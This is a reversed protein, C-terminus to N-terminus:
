RWWLYDLSHHDEDYGAVLGHSAVEIAGVEDKVFSFQQKSFDLKVTKVNGAVGVSLSLLSTMFM